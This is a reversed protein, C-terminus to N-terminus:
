KPQLKGLVAKYGQHPEKELFRAVRSVTTTSVSLKKAIERYTMEGSWLLQAIAFRREFEALEEFTLLDKLFQTIERETHLHTFATALSHTKQKPM